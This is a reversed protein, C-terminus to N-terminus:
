GTAAPVVDFAITMRRDEPAGSFPVTGHWMYSPFLALLGPEPKIFYEPGLVPRTPFASEGFQIWGEGHRQAVAPPLQLYCASSIWGAPHYHNIHFGHPRLRVSWMGSIRYRGTNRSRMPDPGHGIAEMYRRIPGDIAQPFARISAFGSDQPALQVQSGERLSNGVPHARLTHSRTLDGVLDALYAALDPWGDPVDITMAHVLGRYDLLERYRSDGLMRLADAKMAVARGDAPNAQHLSEAVELATHARGVALSANGFAVRSGYDDPVVALLREAYGLARAGDFELAITSAAKLLGPDRDAVRLGADVVALADADRRASLLLGAKSVRLAHLQPQRRLAADLEACAAEVDGSRMWVLEALNAQAADHAPQARVVQRLETEAEEFRGQGLLARALVFTAEPTKGTRAIGARAETAAEAHHGSDTLAAALRLRAEGNGPEIQLWRRFVRAAQAAQGLSTLGHGHLMLIEPTARDAQFLPELVACADEARNAMLLMRALASAAPVDGPALRLAQRWAREAEMPRGSALLIRGLLVQAEVNGPEVLLWARLAQEAQAHDGTQFFSGALLRQIAGPTPHTQLLGHLIRRAEAHRGSQLLGIATRLDTASPPSLPPVM